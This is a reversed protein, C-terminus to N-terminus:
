SHIATAQKYIFNINTRQKWKGWVRKIKHKLNFGNIQYFYRNITFTKKGVWNWRFINLFGEVRRISKRKMFPKSKLYFDFCWGFKTIGLTVFLKKLYKKM